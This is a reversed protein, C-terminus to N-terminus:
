EQRLAGIPDIRAARRAPLFAGLATVALVVPAVLLLATFDRTNNGVVFAAALLEGAVVSMMLGVVLGLAALAIGQRLVMWVVSTRNAGLAIRIGIEKTRRSAAYAVLGYLGVIALALGMTGMAAVMGIITNMLGVTSIQYFEEMTRVDYIPQNADLSRVVNRLPAALRSPDGETETLLILSATPDQRYPLYLYETPPEALLVYKSTQAVGVIEVLSDAGGPNQLRLRKGLPDQEPWYHRAFLENVVAVLPADAADEVRFERGRVIPIRITSFFHEGVRASMVSVNQAGPPLVHGEPVVASVDLRVTQLPVASTLAASRVGPLSRARELLRDYFRQSESPSYRVVTTDFSMMLLHDIRYGPGHRLQDAFSRYTFTAVVLLVVSVAVQGAVLLSRGRARHGRTVESTGKMVSALDVRSTRIAPALGFLLASALAVM